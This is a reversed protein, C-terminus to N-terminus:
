VAGPFTCGRPFFAATRCADLYNPTQLYHPLYVSPSRTLARMIDPWGPDCPPTLGAWQHVIGSSIAASESLYDETAQENEFFARDFGTRSEFIDVVRGDGAALSDAQRRLSNATLREPLDSSAISSPHILLKADRAVVMRLSAAMFVILGGSLARTATASTPMPLSRLFRFIAISEASCGGLLDIKLHIADFSQCTLRRRIAALNVPKDAGITGSLPLELIRGLPAPGPSKLATVTM